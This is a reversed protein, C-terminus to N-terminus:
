AVRRRRQWGIFACFEAQRLDALVEELLILEMKVAFREAACYSAFYREKTLGDHDCWEVCFHRGDSLQVMRPVHLINAM